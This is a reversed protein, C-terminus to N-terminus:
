VYHCSKHRIPLYKSGKLCGKTGKLCVGCPEQERLSNKKRSAIRQFILGDREKSDACVAAALTVDKVGREVAVSCAPLNLQLACLTKLANIPPPYEIQGTRM